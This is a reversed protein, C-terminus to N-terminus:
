INKGSSGQSAQDPDGSSIEGIEDLFLTGGAAAEIRGVRNGVAGTFAGKVHGFLESELLNESLASCNVSVMPKEARLGGHHLARAVLEKGTGSEGTILVTTDSGALDELLRYINQMKRSRGILGHLRSRADLERELVDLRTMDRLLLVAGGIRANEDLLPSISM